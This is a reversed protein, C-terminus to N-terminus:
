IRIDATWHFANAGSGIAPACNFNASNLGIDLFGGGAVNNTQVNSGTYDTFKSANGVADWFSMSPTARKSVKFYVSSRANQGSLVQPFSAMGVTTSAAIATTLDYSKEFFYQCAAFEQSPDNYQRSYTAALSGQNLIAQEVTFGNNLDYANGSSVGTIRIRVGIVGSATAGTGLAQGNITCSVFTSSNVTTLVESGITTTPKIESTASYFQVGVQNVNGLAKVLVTFSATQGLLPRSARNSLVQYLECGNQIGTGTPATTIKLQAGFGSGNTVAAQQSYTIVGEITGGGLINNAYWQDAQYLYTTTPTGGGTATVTATTGAQWYDFASNVLFNYAYVGAGATPASWTPPSTGGASTLVQGNSGNPLRTAIGATGGYIIDGGASMPNNSGGSQYFYDSGSKSM